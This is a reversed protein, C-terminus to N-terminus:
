KPGKWREHKVIWLEGCWQGKKWRKMISLDKDMNTHMESYIYNCENTEKNNKEIVIKVV